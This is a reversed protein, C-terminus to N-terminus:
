TIIRVESPHSSITESVTAAKPESERAYDMGASAKAMEAELDAAKRAREQAKEREEEEQQRRHKTRETSDLLVARQIAEVDPVLSHVATAVSPLPASQTSAPIGHRRDLLSPLTAHSSLCM